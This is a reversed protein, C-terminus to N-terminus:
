QAEARRLLLCLRVLADSNSVLYWDDTPEGVDLAALPIVVRDQTTADAESARMEDDDEHIVKAPIKAFIKTPKLVNTM